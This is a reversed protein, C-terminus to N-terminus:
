GSFGTNVLYPIGASNMEFGVVDDRMAWVFPTYAVLLNFNQRAMIEQIEYYIQRRKERDIEVEGARALKNLEKVNAGSEFGNTGVYFGIDLSPDNIEDEGFVALAEYEGSFFAEVLASQDLPKLTVDFGVAEFDQQMVQASTSAQTNGALYTLTFKPALGTDEVAEALLKRARAPDHKPPEIQPNWFLQSPPFSSGAPKGHGALAVKVIAERDLAIDVAERARPDRFLPNYTSLDLNEGRGFSFEEVKVGPSRELEAIQSMPPEQIADLAGSRLQAIRSGAEPVGKFVVQDLYPRNRQWYHPNRGLTLAQGRAWSDLKFPGTGIPDQAFEGESMGAYDDPVIGAAPVALESVLAPAPDKTEIVVTSPSPATVSEITEFMFGWNVSKRVKDLSFAVDKATLPQGNSFRVGPRLRFVWHRLDPSSRYNTVLWPVVKEERNLTFLPEMIQSVVHISMVDGVKSPDLTAVESIEGISMTGGRKPPGEAQESEGGGGCGAVAAAALVVLAVVTCFRTSIGMGM